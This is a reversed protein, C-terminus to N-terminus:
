SLDLPAWRAKVEGMELVKVTVRFGPKEPFWENLPGQGLCAEGM